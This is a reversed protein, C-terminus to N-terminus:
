GSCRQFLTWFDAGKERLHTSRGSGLQDYHVVPRGTRAVEAISLVYDHTFGPGGHVVVLPTMPSSLEGTIRYCTEWEKFPVVGEVSANLVM